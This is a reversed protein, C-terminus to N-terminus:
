SAFADISKLLSDDKVFNWELALFFLRGVELHEKLFKKDIGSNLLIKCFAAIFDHGHIKKPAELKLLKEELASIKKNFDARQEKSAANKNFVKEVYEAFVFAKKRNIEDDIAIISWNFKLSCIAARVVFAKLVIPELTVLLKQVEISPADSGIAQEFFKELFATNWFLLESSTGNTTQLLTCNHEIGLAHDCDADIISMLQKTIQDTIAIEKSFAIVRQREGSSLEYKELLDKGVDVTSISYVKVSNKGINKLVWKYLDKDFSGEVYIEKIAPHLQFRAQIESITRLPLSM